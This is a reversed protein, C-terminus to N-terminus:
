EGALLRERKLASRAFEGMGNQAIMIQQMQNSGEIIETIKLDRYFREVRGEEASCGAAGQLQVAQSALAVSQTSAFYKAITTEMTALPDGAVRREAAHLCLRLAAKYPTIMDALMKQILQHKALPQGFQQRKRTHAVSDELCAEMAGVCGFAICLRGLDLISAAVYSIGAGKRGILNDAPIVCDNLEIEGLMAARFGLLGRLPKVSVGPTNSPVLCAVASGDELKGFVLLLDAETAYSIWKKRGNVRYGEACPTLTTQIGTAESGFEPETLCFAGMLRGQALDPLWQARQQETGWLRLAELVMSHVTVISLLSMSLQGLEACLQGFSVADWGRGGYESDIFTGLLGAQALATCVERPMREDRDWANAQASYRALLRAAELRNSAHAADNAM